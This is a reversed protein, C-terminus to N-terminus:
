RFVSSHIKQDNAIKTSQCQPKHCVTPLLVRYVEKCTVPTSGLAICVEDPLSPSNIEQQLSQFFFIIDISLISTLDHFKKGRKVNFYCQSLQATNGM